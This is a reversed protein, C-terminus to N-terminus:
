LVKGGAIGDDHRVHHGTNGAHRDVPFVIDQVVRDPARDCEDDITVQPRARAAAAFRLEARM